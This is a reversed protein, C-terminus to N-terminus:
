DIELFSILINGPRLCLQCPSLLAPNCKEERQISPRQGLHKHGRGFQYRQIGLAQHSPILHFTRGSVTMLISGEQISNTGLLPPELSSGQGKWWTSPALQSAPLPSESSWAPVWIELIWGGSQLFKKELQRCWWSGWCLIFPSGMGGKTSRRWCAKQHDKDQYYVRSKWMVSKWKALMHPLSFTAGLPTQILIQLELSLQM